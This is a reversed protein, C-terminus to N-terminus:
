VAGGSFMQSFGWGDGVPNPGSWAFTGDGHGDHHYWLM